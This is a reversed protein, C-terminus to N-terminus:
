RNWTERTEALKRDLKWWGWGIATAGINLQRWPKFGLIHAGLDGSAFCSQSNLLNNAWYRSSCLLLVTSLRGWGEFRFPDDQTLGFALNCFRPVVYRLFNVLEPDEKCNWARMTSRHGKSRYSKLYIHGEKTPGRKCPNRCTLTLWTLWIELSWLKQILRGGDSAPMWRKYEVFNVCM